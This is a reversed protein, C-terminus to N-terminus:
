PHLSVVERADRPVAAHARSTGAPPRLLGACGAVDFVPIRRLLPASM